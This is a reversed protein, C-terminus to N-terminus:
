NILVPELQMFAYFQLEKVERHNNVLSWFTLTRIRLEVADTIIQAEQSDKYIISKRGTKSWGKLNPEFKVRGAKELLVENM